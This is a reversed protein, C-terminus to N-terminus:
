SIIDKNVAVPKLPRLVLDILQKICLFLLDIVKRVENADSPTAMGGVKAHAQFPIKGSESEKPLRHLSCRPLVDVCAGPQASGTEKETM